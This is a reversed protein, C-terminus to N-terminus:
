QPYIVQSQGAVVLEVAQSSAARRVRPRATAPASAAVARPAAVSSGDPRIDPLRALARPAEDKDGPNRLALYFSGLSRALTFRAIQEPRMALTLTRGQGAQPRPPAGLSGDASPPPPPPGLAEGVSVVKVGQLLTSAESRDSAMGAAGKALVADGLVLQVDVVDGPRLLNSVAIEDTTQISIARYGVPVMVALGLGSADAALSAATVPRRAPIDVAAIRGIAAASSTLAGPPLQGSAPTLALDGPELIRGAPIPQAAVVVNMESAPAPAAKPKPASLRNAGYAILGLGVAVGVAIMAASRKVGSLM